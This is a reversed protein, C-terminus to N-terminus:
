VPGQAWSRLPFPAPYLPVDRLEGGAMLPRPKQLSTGARCPALLYNENSLLGGLASLEGRLM